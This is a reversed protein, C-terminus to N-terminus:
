LSNKDIWLQVIDTFDYFTLDKVNLHIPKCIKPADKQFSSYRDYIISGSPINVKRKSDVPQLWNRVAIIIKKVENQHTDIDQGSIDSCFKQYHYENKDLILCNKEQQQRNGFQKAGLFIGLELPMNFRPLDSEPDLETRSIDHIGCRCNKIISYIHDIRNQSSDKSELSCRAKYGCDHITFVLAYFLPKYDNDFPCNIFVNLDYNSLTM